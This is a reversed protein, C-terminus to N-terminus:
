GNHGSGKVRSTRGSGTVKKVRGTGTVSKAAGKGSVASIQGSFSKGGSVITLNVVGWHLVMLNHM